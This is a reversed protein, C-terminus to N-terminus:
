YEYTTAHQSWCIGYQIEDGEMMDEEDEGGHGDHLDDGGIPAGSMIAKLHQLQITNTELAYSAQILHQTM